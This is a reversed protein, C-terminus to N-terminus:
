PFRAISRGKGPFPRLFRREPIRDQRNDRQADAFVRTMEDPTMTQRHQLVVKPMCERLSRGKLPNEGLWHWEVAFKFISFIGEFYYSVTKPHITKKAARKSEREAAIVM